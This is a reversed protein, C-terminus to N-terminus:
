AFMFGTLDFPLLVSSLNLISNMSVLFISNVMVSEANIFYQNVQRSYDTRNPLTYHFSMLRQM